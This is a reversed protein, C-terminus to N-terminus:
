TLLYSTFRRHMASAAAMGTSSAAMTAAANPPGPTAVRLSADGALIVIQWLVPESVLGQRRIVTELRAMLLGVDCAPFVRRACRRCVPSATTMPVAAQGEGVAVGDGNLVGGVFIAIQWLVADAVVGYWRIMTELRATVFAVDDDPFIRRPCM